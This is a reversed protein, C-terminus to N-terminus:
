FFLALILISAISKLYSSYCSLQYIKSNAAKRTWINHDGKEMRRMTTTTDLYQEESLGVCGAHM